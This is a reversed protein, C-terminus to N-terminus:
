TGAACFARWGGYESIDRAGDLAYPECVFGKVTSGDALTLTGIGLPAPIEAVFSAFAAAPMDWVELAIATGGETVRRLGPKPPVTGSLAHLRYAPASTTEGVLVAGRSTLQANLPMGSLHAGVVALRMWGAAVPPWAAAQPEMDRGAMPRGTAGLPLQSRAHWRRGFAVLAAESMAPAIATVGFPLGDTRLSAPLALAALDLFNVFNTYVGLESNRAVPDALMAAITHITPATPVLLFDITQWLPRTQSRLEELRYAGRFADLASYRDALSIVERVVPHVAAPNARMLAETAAMREAVWPGQYLLAAAEAFPAFDVPVIEAPWQALRALAADFAAQQVHDGFFELPRPVGIRPRAPFAITGADRARSYADAPDAVAAVDLVAQADDVTLAFISVCDLSRCAPVVGHNSIIGRTPKLGVINNFGAPVRGSGATDTGLAFPVLGRAVVAASGSSSGGSVYRADFSNPVAGYPSRTGNLGTAFQDLNTKGLPVAGAAVLREVVTAHRAPRYAFAVCGATTDMGAVDINDKVAFPVGYLPLNAGAARREALEEAAARVSAPDALSIWAADGGMAALRTALAGLVDAPRAGGAYLARYDLLTLPASSDSSM